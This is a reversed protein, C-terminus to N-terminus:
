GANSKHNSHTRCRRGSARIVSNVVGVVDNGKRSMEHVREEVLVSAYVSDADFACLIGAPRKKGGDYVRM